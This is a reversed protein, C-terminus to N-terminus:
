RSYRAVINDKSIGLIISQKDADRKGAVINDKSIGAADKSKKGKRLALRQIGKTTEKVAKILSEKLTLGNRSNEEMRAALEEVLTSLVDDFYLGEKFAEVNGFPASEEIDTGQKHNRGPLKLKHDRLAKISQVTEGEFVVEGDPKTANDDSDDSVDTEFEAEIKNAVMKM